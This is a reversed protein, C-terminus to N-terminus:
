TLSYFPCKKRFKCRRCHDGVNGWAKDAPMEEIEKYVMLLENEAAEISEQSFQAAILDGGEVYYLAATIDSAAVNYMKQVVRAYCRLQLDHVINGPTKRWPGKKTTKYDIIVHKGQHEILRDILGTVMRKNPPDLDYEFKLETEGNTGM